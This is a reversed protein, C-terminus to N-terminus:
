CSRQKENFAKQDAIGGIWEEVSNRIMNIKAEKYTKM